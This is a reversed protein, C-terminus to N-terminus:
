GIIFIIKWGYIPVLWSSVAGPLAGGLTVGCFMLIILTARVRRPAYEGNLAIMNPMLGGLGLGALARLWLLQNLSTAWVAALTFIGFIVCSIVTATKRGYRDGIYGLLPSGVLIGVLSASFVPGLAARNTIQWEKLLEPAAFAIATIDYGDSLVILFSFVVLFINFGTVPREDILRAVDLTQLQNMTGGWTAKHSVLKARRVEHAQVSRRSLPRRHRSATSRAWNGPFIARVPASRVRQLGM